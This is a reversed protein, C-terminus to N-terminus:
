KLKRWDDNTDTTILDSVHFRHPIWDGYTTVTSDVQNEKRHRPYIRRANPRCLSTIARRTATDKEGELVLWIFEQRFLKMKELATSFSEGQILQEELKQAIM